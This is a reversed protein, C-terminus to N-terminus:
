KVGHHSIYRGACSNTTDTPAIIVSPTEQTLHYATITKDGAFTFKEPGSGSFSLHLTKSGTCSSYSLLAHYGRYIQHVHASVFM